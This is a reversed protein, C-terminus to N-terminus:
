DRGTELARRYATAHRHSVIRYTTLIDVAAAWSGVKCDAVTVLGVDMHQLIRLTAWRDGVKGPELVVTLAEGPQNWVILMRSRYTRDRRWGATFAERLATVM